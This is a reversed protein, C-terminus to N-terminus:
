RSMLLKHLRGDMIYIVIGANNKNRWQKRTVWKFINLVNFVVRCIRTFPCLQEQLFPWSFVCFLGCHSSWCLPEPPIIILNVSVTNWDLEILDSNRNHKELRWFSMPLFWFNLDFLFCKLWSCMFTYSPLPAKMESIFVTWNM